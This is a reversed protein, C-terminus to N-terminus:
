ILSVLAPAVRKSKAAPRAVVVDEEEESSEEEVDPVVAKAPAKRGGRGAPKKVEVEEEVKQTAKTSHGRRSAPIPQLGKVEKSTAKKRTNRTTKAPAPSVQQELEQALDEKKSDSVPATRKNTRTTKVVPTDPSTSAPQEPEV